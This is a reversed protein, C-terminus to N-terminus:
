GELLERLKAVGARHHYKIGRRDLEARLADVEDLEAPSQRIPLAEAEWQRNGAARLERTQYTGKGIKQLIDAHKEQMERVRGNRYTFDVKM